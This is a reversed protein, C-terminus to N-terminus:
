SRYKNEFNRRKPRQAIFIFDLQPKFQLAQINSEEMFLIEPGFSEVFCWVDFQFDRNTLQTNEFSVEKESL